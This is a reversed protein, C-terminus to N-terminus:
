QRQRSSQCGHMWKLIRANREVTSNTSTSRSAMMFIMLRDDPSIGSSQYRKNSTSQQDGYRNNDQQAKKMTANSEKRDTQPELELLQKLQEEISVQRHRQSPARRIPYYNQSASPSTSASQQQQQQRQQQSTYNYEIPPQRVASSQTPSIQGVQPNLYNSKASPQQQQDPESRESFLSGQVKPPKNAVSCSASQHSAALSSELSTSNHTSIFSSNDSGANCGTSALAPKDALQRLCSRRRPKPKPELEPAEAEDDAAGVGGIMQDLRLRYQCRRQYAAIEARKIPEKCISNSNDGDRNNLCARRPAPRIAAAAAPRSTEDNASEDGADSEAEADSGNDYKVLLSDASSPQRRRQQQYFFYKTLFLERTASSRRAPQSAREFPAAAATVAM